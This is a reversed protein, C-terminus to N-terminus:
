CTQSWDDSVFAVAWTLDQRQVVQITSPHRFYSGPGNPAKVSNGSADLSDTNSKDVCDSIAVVGSEVTTVIPATVTTGVARQGRDALKQLTEVLATKEPNTAYESVEATWDQGPDAAAVDVVRWYNRYTEIAAQAAAVQEPTLNDPWPNPKTPDAVSPTPKVISSSPSTAPASTASVSSPASSPPPAVSNSTTGPDATNSTCATLVVLAAVAVVVLRTTKPM